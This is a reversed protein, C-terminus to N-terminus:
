SGVTYRRSAVQTVCIIQSICNMDSGGMLSHGVHDRCCFLGDGTVDDAGPRDVRDV